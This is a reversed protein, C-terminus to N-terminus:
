SRLIPNKFQKLLKQNIFNFGVMDTIKEIAKSTAIISFYAPIPRLNRIRNLLNQEANMVLARHDYGQVIRYYGSDTFKENEVIITVETGSREHIYLSLINMFPFMFPELKFTPVGQSQFIELNDSSQSFSLDLIM